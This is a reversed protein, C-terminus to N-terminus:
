GNEIVKKGPACVSNCLCKRYLMISIPFYSIIVSAIGIFFGKLLQLLRFQRPVIFFFVSSFLVVSEIRKFYGNDKGQYFKMDYNSIGKDIYLIVVVMIICLLLM